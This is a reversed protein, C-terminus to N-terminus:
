RHVFFTRQLGIQHLFCGRCGCSASTDTALQSTPSFERAKDLTNGMAQHPEMTRNVVRMGGKGGDKGDACWGGSRGVGAADPLTPTRAPRIGITSTSLPTDQM